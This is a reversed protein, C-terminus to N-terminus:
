RLKNKQQESTMMSTFGDYSQLQNKSRLDATLIDHVETEAVKAIKNSNTDPFFLEATQNLAMQTMRKM